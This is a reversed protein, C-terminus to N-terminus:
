EPAKENLIVFFFKITDKVGNIYAEKEADCANSLIEDQLKNYKNLLNPDHSILKRIDEDYKNLCSMIDKKVYYNEFIINLIDM